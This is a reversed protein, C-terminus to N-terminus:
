ESNATKAMAYYYHIFTNYSYQIAIFHHQLLMSFHQSMLLISTFFLSGCFIFALLKGHLLKWAMFFWKFVFTVDHINQQCNHIFMQAGKWLLLVQMLMMHHTNSHISYRKVNWNLQKSNPPGQCVTTYRKTITTDDNIRCHENKNKNWDRKKEERRIRRQKADCENWRMENALKQFGDAKAECQVNM